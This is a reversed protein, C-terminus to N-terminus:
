TEDAITKLIQDLLKKDENLIKIVDMSSGNRRALLLCLKDDSENNEGVDFTALSPMNEITEQHDETQSKVPKDTDIHHSEREARVCGKIGGPHHELFNPLSSGDEGNKQAFSLAAAYETLRTKDYDRGFCLKLTPTFPARKQSKLGKIELLRGYSVPNSLCLKHFDLVAGLTEYLSKRSRSDAPNQGQVLKRCKKLSNKLLRDSEDDEQPPPAPDIAKKQSDPLDSKQRSDEATKKADRLEEETIWRIAGLIFNINVGDDSFPLLVCRYLIKELNKNKFEADFSIPSKNALVEMYHDTIRSLLTRRPIEDISKLCLDQDLDDNLLQGIVQLTPENEPDRLDILVMNNKYAAIDEPLLSKLPPIGYDSALRFWCNYLQFTIRKEQGTYEVPNM